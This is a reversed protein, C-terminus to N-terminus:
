RRTIKDSVIMFHYGNNIRKPGILINEVYERLSEKTYGIADYKDTDLKCESNYRGFSDYIVVHTKRRM